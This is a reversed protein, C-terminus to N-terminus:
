SQARQFAPRQMLRQVYEQLAPFGELLGLMGAWVLTSGIMVDAATFREGLLFPRGDLARALVAAVEKFKERGEEAVKANREAEPLHVAHLFVQLIPPELTTMAYLVWQYYLGRDKSGIAPALGKDAYKDALYLCLAASEYLATGGDVLTPVTGNPNIALYEPTKLSGDSTSRLELDYPVELEELMWRPRGSRSQPVHYLKM